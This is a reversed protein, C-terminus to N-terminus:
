SPAFRNRRSRAVLWRLVNHRYRKVVFYVVLYILVGLILSNILAGIFFIKGIVAITEIRHHVINRWFNEVKYIHNTWFLSGTKFNLYFFLPFFPKFIVDGLLGAPVNSWFLASILGALVVGFGFTPYFNVIAGVAFGLALKRPAGQLRLFKILNYKLQRKLV